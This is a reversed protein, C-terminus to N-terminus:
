PVLKADAVPLLAGLPPITLVGFLLSTASDILSVMFARLSYRPKLDADSFSFSWNMPASSPRITERFMGVDSLM